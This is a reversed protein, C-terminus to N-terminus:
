GVYGCVGTRPSNVIPMTYDDECEHTKICEDCYDEYCGQCIQTAIGKCKICEFLPPNNRALLRISENVAGKRSSIVQLNLETSSGFDYVYEFKDNKDMVKYLPIEMSEPADGWFDDQEEYSSYRVGHITFESLHGCCELWIERLFADLKSLTITNKVEIHLWYLGYASIRLHYINTNKQGKLKNDAEKKVSCSLLHRGIGRGSFTKGCFRCTGESSSM